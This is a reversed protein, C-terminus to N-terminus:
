QSVKTIKEIESRPVYLIGGFRISVLKNAKIWRYITLRSKRLLKAAQAVSLIDPSEITISM